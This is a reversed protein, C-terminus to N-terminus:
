FRYRIALGLDFYFDDYRNILGIEPRTDVAIQIPIERFNYELGLNFAAALFTEENTDAGPYDHDYGWQGMSPGVGLYWYFGGDIKKMWQYLFTLHYFHWNDHNNWGLDFELRDSHVKHQFSIETGYGNGGGFRLGLSNKSFQADVSSFIFVSLLLIFIHKM